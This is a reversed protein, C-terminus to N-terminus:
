RLTVYSELAVEGVLLVFVFVLMVGVGFLFALPGATGLKGQLRRLPDRSSVFWHSLRFHPVLVSLSSTVTAPCWLRLLPDVTSFACAGVSPLVCPLSPSLALRGSSAHSLHGCSSLVQPERTNSSGRSRRPM